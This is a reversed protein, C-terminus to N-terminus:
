GPRTPLLECTPHFAISRNLLLMSRVNTYLCELESHTLGVDIFEALEEADNPEPPLLTPATSASKRKGNGRTRKTKGPPEQTSKAILPSAFCDRFLKFNFSEVGEMEPIYYIGISPVIPFLYIAGTYVVTWCLLLRASGGLGRAPHQAEFVALRVVNLLSCTM